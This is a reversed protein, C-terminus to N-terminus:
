IAGKKIYRNTYSCLPQYNTYHTLKLTDEVTKATSLPIIHDLDWGYNLEGNYLGYNDWNMWPEFKNELYTKFEEFSCGLMIETKSLKETKTKKILRQVGSRLNHKIKFLPDNDYKEKWKLMRKQNIVDNNKLYYQYNSERIKEKNDQRYQKVKDINEEYYEKRKAKIREKNAQYWAKQKEKHTEKSM